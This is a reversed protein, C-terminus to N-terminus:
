PHWWVTQRQFWAGDDHQQAVQIGLQSQAVASSADHTLQHVVDDVDLHQGARRCTITDVNWPDVDRRRVYVQRERQFSALERHAQREGHCNVLCLTLREVRDADVEVLRHETM